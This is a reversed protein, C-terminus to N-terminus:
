GTSMRSGVSATALVALATLSLIAGLRVSWPRYRLTVV